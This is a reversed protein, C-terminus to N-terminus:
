QGRGRETALASASLRRKPRRRPPKRKPTTKEEIWKAIGSPQWWKRYSGFTAMAAVLVARVPAVGALDGALWATGVGAAACVAVAAIARQWPQWRSSVVLAVVPPMGIGALASFLDLDTFGPEMGEM